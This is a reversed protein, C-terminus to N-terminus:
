RCILLCFPGWRDVEKRNGTDKGDEARHSSADEPGKWEEGPREHEGKVRGTEVSAGEFRNEVSCEM